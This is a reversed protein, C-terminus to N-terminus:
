RKVQQRALATKARVRQVGDGVAEAREIHPVAAGALHVGAVRDQHHVHLSRAVLRALRGGRTTRQKQREAADAVAQSRKLARAARDSM